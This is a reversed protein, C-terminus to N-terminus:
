PLTNPKYLAYISKQDEKKYNKNTTAKAVLIMNNKLYEEDIGRKELISINITRNGNTETLIWCRKLRDPQIKELITRAALNSSPLWWNVM